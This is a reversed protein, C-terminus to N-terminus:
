RPGDDGDDQGGQRGHTKEEERAEEGAAYIGWRDRERRAEEEATRAAGDARWWVMGGAGAVNLAATARACVLVGRRAVGLKPARRRRASRPLFTSALYLGSFLASTGSGSICFGAVTQYSAVAGPFVGLLFPLPQLPRLHSAAALTSLALPTFPSASSTNAQNCPITFKTSYSPRLSSAHRPKDSHRFWPRAYEIAFNFGSGQGPLIEM